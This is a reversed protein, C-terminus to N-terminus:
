PYTVGPIHNFTITWEPDPVTGNSYVPATGTTLQTVPLLNTLFRNAVARTKQYNSNYVSFNEIALGASASNPAAPNYWRYDSITNGDVLWGGFSTDGNFYNGNAARELLMSNFHQQADVESEQFIALYTNKYTGLSPGGISTSAHATGSWSAYSTMSGDFYDNITNSQELMAADFYLKQAAYTSTSNNATGTWSTDSNTSGDFYDGLVNHAEVLVSDMQWTDGISGTGTTYAYILASTATAPATATVSWRQSNTTLTKNATSSSLLAGVANYWSIAIQVTRLTGSISKAYFSATYQQGATVVFSAYDSYAGGLGTGTHVIQYAYNGTGWTAPVRTNTSGNQSWGVTNVEFSPNVILNTRTVATNLSGTLRIVLIISGAVAVDLTVSVRVWSNAVLTPSVQLVTSVTATGGERNVSIIRGALTSSAPIYCYM